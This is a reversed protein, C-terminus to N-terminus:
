KKNVETKITLYVDALKLYLVSFNDFYMESFEVDENFLESLSLFYDHAIQLLTKINLNLLEITTQKLGNNRKLEANNHHLLNLVSQLHDMKQHFASHARLRRTVLNARRTGVKNPTISTNNNLDFYDVTAKASLPLGHKSDDTKILHGNYRFAKKHDEKSVPEKWEVIKPTPNTKFKEVHSYKCTLKDTVRSDDSWYNPSWLKIENGNLIIKSPNDTSKRTNCKSCSIHLNKWNRTLLFSNIIFGDNSRGDGHKKPYYHEIDESAEIGIKVGCYACRNSYIQNLLSRVSKENDDYQNISTKQSDTLKKGKKVLAQYKQVAEENLEELIQNLQTVRYDSKSKEVWRM